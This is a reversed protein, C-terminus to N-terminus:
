AKHYKQLLSDFFEKGKMQVVHAPIVYEGHSVRIPISDSTGTGPGHVAGGHKANSGVHVMGGGAMGMVPNNSMPSPAGAGTAPSPAGAGMSLGGAEAARIALILVFVLGEDYEPSLDQEDAMGQQIAFNRIYPYMEPNQLATMALQGAKHLEEQTIEGAQLGAMIAKQIQQVQQPNKRMFDQLQMELVQPSMRQQAGGGTRMGAPRIPMGNQGVMGGTAYTPQLRFDLAAAQPNSATTGGSLETNSSIPREDVTLQPTNSGLLGQLSQPLDLSTTPAPLEARFSGVGAPPTPQMQPAPVASLNVAAPGTPQPMGPQPMSVPRQGMQAMPNTNPTPM